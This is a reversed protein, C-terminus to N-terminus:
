SARVPVRQGAEIYREYRGWCDGGFCVNMPPYSRRFWQNCWTVPMAAFQSEIYLDALRHDQLRKATDVVVSTIQVKVLKGSRHKVAQRYLRMLKVALLDDM